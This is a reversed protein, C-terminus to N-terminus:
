RLPFPKRSGQCQECWVKYDDRHPAHLWVPKRSICVIHCSHLHHSNVRFIVVMIVYMSNIKRMNKAVHNKVMYTSSHSVPTMSQICLM